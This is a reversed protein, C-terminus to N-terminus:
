WMTVLKRAFIVQLETIPISIEDKVTQNAHTTDHTM